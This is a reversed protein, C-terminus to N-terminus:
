EGMRWLAARGAPLDISWGEPTMETLESCHRPDAQLDFDLRRRMTVLSGTQTEDTDNFLTLYCEGEAITWANSSSIRTRRDLTRCLAGVPRLLGNTLPIYKRFLSRDREYWRPNLLLSERPTKASFGAM